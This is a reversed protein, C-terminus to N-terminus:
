LQGRLVVDNFDDGPREPLLPVVIRGATEWIQQLRRAAIQGEGNLDHDILVILRRVNPLVPLTALQASAIMSWAPVLPAGAYALRTSAALVTELGEGVVLEGNAPWLKVVDLSGLAMRKIKDIKGDLVQLGIRHVGVAADSLPDRMLALLCPVHQPGFVCRPHFRLSQAIDAPLREIDIKRNDRLYREALTGHIPVAKQWLTLAFEIRDARETSPANHGNGTWDTIVCLAESESLGEVQTLWDLRNGHAGCGYCHYHDAYLQCSPDLDEHFPCCTKRQDNLPLTTLEWLPAVDLPLEAIYSANDDRELKAISSKPLDLAPLWEALDDEFPADEGNDTMDAPAVTPADEPPSLYSLGSRVKGALPIDRAWDPPELVLALFEQETLPSDLPIEIVVEDHVHHVVPIGRAELRVIASALIDRATGQVVNEVLTGFWARRDVWNGRSNDKFLIDPPADEFKSPILRAHPYAIARGSPLTLYLTETRFSATISGVAHESGTQIALRAARALARWFQVTKPHADRWALIDAYIEDDRREDTPVLRRWAGVSGGFGGALDGGKGIQREAATIEACPDTKRLMKRAVVRYPELQTNGTRDFERYADLKWSEGAVAALVRSEISSLDCTKLQYGLAANLVAKSISGIVELPPGYQRLAARDMALVAEVVSVPVNLDNRKLNQLQAGRGTWRGPAGGHFRTTGRMRDDASVWSLIRKFKHTSARAGDRRLELVQRIADDPNAALATTISRRGVSTLAHGHANVYDRMRTVQDVSTLLGGTIESLKNSIATRERVTLDHACQAFQRSCHVGRRNIVADAIQVQRESPILHVLGPHTWIARCCRLDQACYKILRAVRDADDLWRIGKEGKKNKRPKAMERMLKKGDRDKQYEIALAVCLRALDAPYANALALAMSCHWADLPLPSFGHRPVLIQDYVVGDFDGHAVIKWDTPNAAVAAFIDPVPKDPTWSQVEGDDCAFCVCWIRTNPCAAYAWVGAQHLSIPSGSEVDIYLVPM